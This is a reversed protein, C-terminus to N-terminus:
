FSRAPSRGWCREVVPCGRARECQIDECARAHTPLQNNERYWKISELKAVVEQMKAFTEDDTRVLLMKAKADAEIIARAGGGGTTTTTRRMGTRRSSAAGGAGGGGVATGTATTSAPPDDDGCGILVMAFLVFFAGLLRHASAYHFRRIAAM